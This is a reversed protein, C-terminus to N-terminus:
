DSILARFDAESLVRIPCGQQILEEARRWKSSREGRVFRDNGVVVLTTKKTVGNAVECGAFAALDAQEGKSLEFGGTLVVVEGFLPGDLNGDRRLDRTSSSRDLSIPKRIREMWGDVDLSHERSARIVIEAVARADEGADHHRLNIGLDAAVNKLGYGTKGYKEPWARRVVQASDMWVTGEFAYGCGTCARSVAHKDYPTHSFVHGSMHHSVSDAIERFSPARRVDEETISLNQMQWWAFPHPTHVLKTFNDVIQGGRVVAFGIQCISEPYSSDATEVDLAVFSLDNATM